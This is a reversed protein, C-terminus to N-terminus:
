SSTKIASTANAAQAEQAGIKAKVSANVFGVVDSTKQKGDNKEPPRIGALIEFLTLLRFDTPKAPAPGSDEAIQKLQRSEYNEPYQAQEILPLSRYHNLIDTYFQPTRGNNALSEAERDRTLQRRWQQEVDRIEHLAARRENITYPGKEDYIILNLQERSYGAFPNKVRGDHRDSHVIFHTAQRARELLEPDTTKPVERNHEPAHYNDVLQRWLREAEVGLQERDLGKDRTEARVASEALQLSLTSLTSNNSLLAPKTLASSQLPSASVSPTKIVAAAATNIGGTTNINM